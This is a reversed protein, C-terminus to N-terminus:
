CIAIKILPYLHLNIFQMTFSMPLVVARRRPVAVALSAENAVAASVHNLDLAQDHGHPPGSCQIWGKRRLWTCTEGLVPNSTECLFVITRGFFDRKM